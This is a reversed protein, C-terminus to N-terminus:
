ECRVPIPAMCLVDSELMVPISYALVPTLRLTGSFLVIPMILAVVSLFLGCLTFITKYVAESVRGMYFNM